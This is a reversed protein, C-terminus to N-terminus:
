RRAPLVLAHLDPRVLGSDPREDISGKLAFAQTKLLLDDLNLEGSMLEHLREHIQDHGAGLGFGREAERFWNVLISAKLREEFASEEALVAEVRQRMRNWCPM